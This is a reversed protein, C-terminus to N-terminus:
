CKSIARLTLRKLLTVVLSKLQEQEHSEQELPNEVTLCIDKYLLPTALDYYYKFTSCLARLSNRDCLQVIREDLETSLIALSM